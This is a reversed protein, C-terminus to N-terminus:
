VRIIALNDNNTAIRHIRTTLHKKFDSNKSTSYDCKDCHFKKLKQSYNNM